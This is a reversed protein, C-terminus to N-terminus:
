KGANLPNRVAQAVAFWVCVVVTVVLLLLVWTM